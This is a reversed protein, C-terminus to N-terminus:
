EVNRVKTTYSCEGGRVIQFMSLFVMEMKEEINYLKDYPKCM